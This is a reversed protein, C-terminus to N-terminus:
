TRQNPFTHAEEGGMLSGKWTSKGSKRMNEPETRTTYMNPLSHERWVM